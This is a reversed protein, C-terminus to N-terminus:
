YWIGGKKGYEYWRGDRCGAAWFLFGFVGLFGFILSLM